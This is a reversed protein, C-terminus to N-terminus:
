HQVVTIHETTKRDGRMSWEQGSGIGFWMRAQAGSEALSAKVPSEAPLRDWGNEVSAEAM